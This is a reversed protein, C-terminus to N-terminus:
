YLREAADKHLKRVLSRQENCSSLGVIGVLLLLVIMTTKM